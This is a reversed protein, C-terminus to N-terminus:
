YSEWKQASYLVRRTQDVIYFELVESSNINLVDTDSYVYTSTGLSDPNEEVSIYIDLFEANISNSLNMNSFIDLNVIGNELEMYDKDKLSYMLTYNSKRNSTDDFNISFRIDDKDQSTCSLLSIFM